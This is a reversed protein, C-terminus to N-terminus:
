RPTPKIRPQGDVPRVQVSTAWAQRISPLFRSRQDFQIRLVSRVRRYFPDLVSEFSGIKTSNM